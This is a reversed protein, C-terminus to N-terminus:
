LRNPYSAHLNRQGSMAQGIMPLGDFVEVLLAEKDSKKLQKVGDVENRRMSRLARYVAEPTANIICHSKVGKFKDATRAVSQPGSGALSILLCSLIVVFKRIDMCLIGQSEPVVPSVTVIAQRESYPTVLDVLSGDVSRNRFHLSTL